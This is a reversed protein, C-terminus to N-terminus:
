ATHDDCATLILRALQHRRIVPPKTLRETGFGEESAAVFRATEAFPTISSFCERPNSAFRLAETGARCLNPVYAHIAGNPRCRALGTPM